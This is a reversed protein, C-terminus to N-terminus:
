KDLYRPSYATRHMRKASPLTYDSIDQYIINCFGSNKFYSKMEDPTALNPVSWGNLCTVIIKWEKETFQRRKALGDALVLRGGSKLLRYAEKIFSEKDVAYCSSELGWVVDFRADDFPTQCFDASQFKVRNSVGRKKAFQTAYEVQQDSLTIGLVKAGYNEALWIASGGLGCGADLIYDSELIGVHEALVKNMKLLSDSHSRTESDWYGYHLALNKGNAWAFRYDWYCTDYYNVIDERLNQTTLTRYDQNPQISYRSSAQTTNM